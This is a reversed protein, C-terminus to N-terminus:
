AFATYRMTGPPVCVSSIPLGSSVLPCRSRRTASGRRIARPARDEALAITLLAMRETAVAFVAADHEGSQRRTVIRGRERRIQRLRALWHRRDFVRVRARRQRRKQQITRLRV